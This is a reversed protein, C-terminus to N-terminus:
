FPIAVRRLQTKKRSKECLRKSFVIRIPCIFFNRHTETFYRAAFCNEQLTMRQYNTRRLLQNGLFRDYIISATGNNQQLNRSIKPYIYRLVRLHSLEPAVLHSPVLNLSNQDDRGCYMNRWGPNGSAHPAFQCVAYQKLCYKIVNLM